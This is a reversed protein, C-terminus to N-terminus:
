RAGQRTPVEPAGPCLAIGGHWAIDNGLACSLGHRPPGSPQCHPFMNVHKVSLGLHAMHLSSHRQCSPGLARLGTITIRDLGPGEATKSHQHIRDDSPLFEVPSAKSEQGVPCRVPRICLGNPPGHHPQPSCLFMLTLGLAFSTKGRWSLGHHNVIRQPPQELPRM